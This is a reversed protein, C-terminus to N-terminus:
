RIASGGTVDLFVDELSSEQTRIDVVNGGANQSMERISEVDDMSSVTSVYQSGTQTAGEVPVDTFVRYEVDGYTG